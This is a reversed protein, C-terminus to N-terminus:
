TRDQLDDVGDSKIVGGPAHYRQELEQWVWPWARRLKEINDSDAKRMAAMILGYFPPDDLSIQQSYNYDYLSM